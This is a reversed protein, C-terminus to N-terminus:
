VGSRYGAHEPAELASGFLILRTAGHMKALDVIRNIDTQNLRM